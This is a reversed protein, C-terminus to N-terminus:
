NYTFLRFILMISISYRFIYYTSMIQTVLVLVVFILAGIIMKNDRELKHKSHIQHILVKELENRQDPDLEAHIKNGRHHDNDHSHEINDIAAQVEENTNSRLINGRRPTTEVENNSYLQHEM